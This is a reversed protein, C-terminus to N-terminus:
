VVVFLRMYRGWYKKPIYWTRVVSNEDGAVRWIGPGKTWLEEKEDVDKYPLSVLAVFEFDPDPFIIAPGFNPNGGIWPNRDREIWENEVEVVKEKGELKVKLVVPRVPKFFTGKPYQLMQLTLTNPRVEARVIFYLSEPDLDRFSVNDGWIYGEKEFVEDESVRGRWEQALLRLDKRCYFVKTTTALTIDINDKHWRLGEEHWMVYWWYYWMCGSEDIARKM